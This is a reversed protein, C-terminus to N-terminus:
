VMGAEDVDDIDLIQIANYVYVNPESELQLLMFTDPNYAYSDSM